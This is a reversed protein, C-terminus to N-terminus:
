LLESENWTQGLVGGSELILKITYVISVCQIVDQLDLIDYSYKM